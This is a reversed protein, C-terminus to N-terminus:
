FMLLKESTSSVLPLNLLFFMESSEQGITFGVIESVVCKGASCCGTSFDCCKGHLVAGQFLTFHM